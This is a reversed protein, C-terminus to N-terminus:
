HMIALNGSSLGSLPSVELQQRFDSLLELNTIRIFPQSSALARVNLRFGMLIVENLVELSTELAAELM